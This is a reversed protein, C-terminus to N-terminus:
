QLPRLRRAGILVATWAMALGALFIEWRFPAPMRGELVARFDLVFSLLCVGGGAVAVVWQWPAFWLRAGRAKLRLLLASVAIMSVSILVPALVPAIWPVPVLYLVDLTLLSPPWGIFVRLWVYYLIDWGAFAACFVLFREWADRGAFHGVAWLIFITCIERGVEIGAIRGPILKLPFDFGGPYYIARLYVVVASEVWAFAAVFIVLWILRGRTM